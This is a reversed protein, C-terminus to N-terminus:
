DFLRAIGALGVLGVQPPLRLPEPRGGAVWSLQWQPRWVIARAIRNLSFHERDGSGPGALTGGVLPSGADRMASTLECAPGDGSVRYLSHPGDHLAPDDAHVMRGAGLM